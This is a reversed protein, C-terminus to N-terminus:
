LGLKRFATKMYDTYKIKLDSELFSIKIINYFDEKKSSLSSYVNKRAKEPIKLLIGVSEFDDIKIKNKKGNITLASEENDKTVIRTNLLDYAPSFRIGNESYILSYNKLHMDSNGTLFCFLLLEFFSITDFLKNESYKYVARGTMEASGHYKHETLRGTIQAMDEMHIKENGNRDIRLTLYAIEGSKMPILVNEVTRIGATSALKMTLHENEPLQNYYQSQPKLIYNSKYGVITLKKIETESATLSIKPQVGTISFSSKIINQALKTLESYKYPIVPDINKLISKDLCTKHYFKEKANTKGYCILCKNM